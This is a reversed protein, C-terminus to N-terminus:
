RKIRSSWIKYALGLQFGNNNNSKQDLPSNYKTAWRYNIYSYFNKLFYFGIQTFGGFSNEFDLKEYEKKVAVDNETVQNEGKNFLNHIAGFSVSVKKTPNLRVGIPLVFYNLRDKVFSNQYDYKYSVTTNGFGILFGFTKSINFQMETLGGLSLIPSTRELDTNLCNLRGSVFISWRSYVDDLAPGKNYQQILLNEGQAFTFFSTLIYFIISKKLSLYRVVVHM